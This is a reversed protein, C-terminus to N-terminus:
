PCRAAGPAPAAAEATGELRGLFSTARDRRLRKRGPVCERRVADRLDDIADGRANEEYVCKLYYHIVDPRRCTVSLANHCRRVAAMTPPSQPAVPVSTGDAVRWQRNSLIGNVIELAELCAERKATWTARRRELFLAVVATVVATVVSGSVFPVILSGVLTM